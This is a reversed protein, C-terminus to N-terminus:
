DKKSPSFFEKLYLPETYTTDAFKKSIFLPWALLALHSVDAGQKSFSSNPNFIIQQFKSSGNGCFIMKKSSLIDRFSNEEVILAHPPQKEALNKDYVATFVEMRRADIMPCILEEAEQQVAFALMKLTSVTILPIGLAYCFGKAASLGVRLGTYSGPGISVSIADLNGPSLGNNKLLINIAPHLWVAHDNRNENFVLRIIKEKQSLCVSAKDGSTDIHLLYSM